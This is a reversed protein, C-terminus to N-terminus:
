PSRLTSYPTGWATFCCVAGPLRLGAPPKATGAPRADAVSGACIMSKVSSKPRNVCTQKWFGTFHSIILTGYHMGGGTIIKAFSSGRHFSINQGPPCSGSRQCRAHHEAKGSRSQGCAGIGQELLAGGGFARHAHQIHLIIDRLRDCRHIEAVAADSDINPSIAFLIDLLAIIFGLLLVIQLDCRVAARRVVGQGDFAAGSTCFDCQRIDLDLSSGIRCDRDAAIHLQDNCAGVDQAAALVAGTQFLCVIVPGQGDVAGARQLGVATITCSANATTIIVVDTINDDVAAGDSCLACPPITGADAAAMRALSFIDPDIAAHHRGRAALPTVTNATTIIFIRQQRRGNGNGAAGHLGNCSLGSCGDARQCTRIVQGHGAAAKGYLFEFITPAPDYTGATGDTLHVFVAQGTSDGIQVM